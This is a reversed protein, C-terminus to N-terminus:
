RVNNEHLVALSPVSKLAFRLSLREQLVDRALLDALLFFCSIREAPYLRTWATTCQGLKQLASQRHICLTFRIVSKCVVIFSKFFNFRQGANM